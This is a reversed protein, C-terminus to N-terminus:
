EARVAQDWATRVAAGNNTLRSRAAVVNVDADVTALFEQVEQPVPEGLHTHIRKSAAAHRLAVWQAETKDTTRYEMPLGDGRPDRLAALRSQITADVALAQVVANTAAELSARATAVQTRLTAISAVDEQTGAGARVRREIATLQMSATNFADQAASRQGRLSELNTAVHGLTGAVDESGVGAACLADASLGSASLLLQMPTAAPRNSVVPQHSMPWFFIMGIGTAASMVILLLAAPTALARAAVKLM